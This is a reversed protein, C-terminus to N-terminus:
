INIWKEDKYIAADVAEGEGNENGKLAVFVGAEVKLSDSNIIPVEIAGTTTKICLANKPLLIKEEGPCFKYVDTNKTSNDSSGLYGNFLYISDGFAVARAKYFTYDSGIMDLNLSKQTNKTYIDAVETGYYYNSNKYYPRGWVFLKSGLLAAQGNYLLTGLDIRLDTVMQEEIDIRLVSYFSDSGTKGGVFYVYKGDSVLSGGQVAYPLTFPLESLKETLTDFCYLKNNPTSKYVQTLIINTGVACASPYNPCSEPMVESLKVVEKTEADFYYIKNRYYSTGSGNAQGGFMYIRKGVTAYAMQILGEAPLTQELTTFMNKQPDYCSITSKCVGGLLYIKGDVVGTAGDTHNYYDPTYVCALTDNSVIEKELETSIIIKNPESTKVWLKSTDEPPTDGYAINFEVGGGSGGKSKGTNFGLAFSPWDAKFANEAM